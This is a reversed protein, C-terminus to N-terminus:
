LMALPTKRQPPPFATEIEALDEDTLVLDLARRNAAVHDPGAAKPVPPSPSARDPQVARRL